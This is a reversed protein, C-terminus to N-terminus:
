AQQKAHEECRYERVDMFITTAALAEFGIKLNDKRPFHDWHLGLPRTM